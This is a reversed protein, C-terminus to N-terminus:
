EDAGWGDAPVAVGGEAHRLLEAAAAAEEAARGACARAKSLKGDGDGILNKVARELDALAMGVRREALRILNERDAATMARPVKASM